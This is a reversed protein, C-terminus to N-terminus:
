PDQSPATNSTGGGGGRVGHGASSASSSSSASTTGGGGRAIIARLLVVTCTAVDKAQPNCTVCKLLVPELAKGDELAEVVVPCRSVVLCSAPLCLPLPASCALSPPLPPTQTLSHTTPQYRSLNVLCRMCARVIDKRSPYKRLM